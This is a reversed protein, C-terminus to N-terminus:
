NTDVLAMVPIGLKKAEKIAIDEHGPDVVVILGPPKRMGRIGSLNKELKIQLKSMESIEKKTRM